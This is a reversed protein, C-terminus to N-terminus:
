QGGAAPIAGTTGAGTLLPGLARMIDPRQFLTNWMLNRGINTGYLPVAGAVGAAALPNIHALGGLLGVDLLTRGATGSDPYKSGFVEQAQQALDANLGGNTARQYRSSGNRVADALQAATFINGRNSAGKTAAAADIQKYIRWAQSANSLDQQVNAPSQRIVQQNIADNLDNLSRAYNIADQDSNPNTFIDRSWKSINSRTNGWADGSMTGNQLKSAIQNQVVDDFQGLRSPATQAVEQRINGLDRLFLGKPTFSAQSEVKDFADGITDHMHEIAASGTAVDNPVSTGLPALARNYMARNLTEVNQRQAAGKAEAFIPISGAKEEIEAAPGGLAQGVTPTTGLDHMAQAAPTPTIGGVIKGLVGGAAGAGAGILGQQGVQSWYDNGPNQVPQAAGLAGGTLAARTIGTVPPVPLAAGGLVQGAVGAPTNPTGQSLFRAIADGISSIKPGVNTGGAATAADGIAHSALQAAGGLTNTVGHTIGGTLQDLWNNSIDSAAQQLPSVWPKAPAAAAPQQQQAAAPAAAAQQQAPSDDWKVTAPDPGDDWKVTAPDPGDMGMKDKVKEVYAQTEPFNPVGGAKAVAGPGANYAALASDWSQFKQYNSALYQAAGRAASKMDFPNVGLQQATAPMMQFPGLAGKASVARPNGGSEVHMVANLMGSPIGFQQEIGSFLSGLDM